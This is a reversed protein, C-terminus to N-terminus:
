VGERPPSLDFRALECDRLAMVSASRVQNSVLAMEGVTEGPGIKGYITEEGRGDRSFAQLRGSVLVYLCDAADGERVLLEGRPLHLWEARPAMERVAREDCAGFLRLLAKHAQNCELRRRVIGVLVDLSTPEKDLARLIAARPVLILETLCSARVDGSRVGGFMIQMEGVLEGPGLCVLPEDVDEARLGEVIVYVADSPDGHRFLYEGAEIVRMRAAAVLEAMASPSAASFAATARLMQEPSVCNPDSVDLGRYYCRYVRSGCLDSTHSGYRPGLRGVRPGCRCRWDTRVRERAGEIELADGWADSGGRTFGRHEQRAVPAIM